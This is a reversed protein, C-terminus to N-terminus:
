NMVKSSEYEINYILDGRNAFSMFSILIYYYVSILKSKLALTLGM